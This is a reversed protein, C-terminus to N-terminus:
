EKTKAKPTAEQDVVKETKEQDKIQKLLLPLMEKALEIARTKSGKEIEESIFAKLEPPLKIKTKKSSMKGEMHGYKIETINHVPESEERFDAFPDPADDEAQIFDRNFGESIKMKRIIEEDDTLFLGDRFRAYIGPKAITGSLPNSQIAPQLVLTYNTSKSIFKM